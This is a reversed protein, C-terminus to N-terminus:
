LHGQGLRVPGPQPSIDSFVMILLWIWIFFMFFWLMSLYTGTASGMRYDTACAKYDACAPMPAATAVAAHDM